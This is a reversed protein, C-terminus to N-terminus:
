AAVARQCVEHLAEAVDTPADFRENVHIAVLAADGHGAALQGTGEKEEGGSAEVRHVAPPNQGEALRLPKVGQHEGATEVVFAAVEGEPYTHRALATDPSPYHGHNGAMQAHRHPAGPKVFAAIRKDAYLRQLTERGAEAIGYESRKASKRGINLSIFALFLSKLRYFKRCNM